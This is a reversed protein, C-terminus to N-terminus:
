DIQVSRVELAEADIAGSLSPMVHGQCLIQRKAPPEWAVSLCRLIAAFISLSKARKM